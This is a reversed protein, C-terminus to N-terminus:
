LGFLLYIIFIIALIWIGWSVEKYKGMAISTIAYTIFGWAIGISISYSLIMMLITMFVSAAIIKNNWNVEKLQVIMFIGVTVLASATVSSTFLSLILNSFFISLFFCIGVIIATLGTRGGVGIGAASELYAVLTSTGFISGIIGALSVSLFAKESRPLQNNEDVLECEKGLSIITGISDFLTIFVISFIIIILDFINSFLGSFGRTFSFFLSTDINTTLIEKPFTPMLIDGVGFGFLHFILGLISTIILALFISAPVNQVYFILTILIGILALLAHPSLLSGMSILTSADSVIIGCRQLGIFALFLGISAGIGLKLDIPIANIIAERLGSISILLFVVSSVFVAALATEWTKGMGLVITYTFLANYGMGPAIAIPYRAVFGMLICSIGSAFATAFFVGTQSMGGDALISPNVALIYAMALFSTLGAIIETKLDTKNENFKFFNNLM